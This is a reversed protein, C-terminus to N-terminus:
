LQVWVNLTLVWSREIAISLKTNTSTNGTACLPYKQGKEQENGLWRNPWGNVSSIHHTERKQELGSHQFSLVPFLVNKLNRDRVQQKQPLQLCSSLMIPCLVFLSCVYNNRRMLSRFNCKDRQSPFIFYRWHVYRTLYSDEVLSFDGYSRPCFCQSAYSTQWGGQRIKVWLLTTEAEHLRNGHSGPM